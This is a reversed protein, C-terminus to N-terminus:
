HKNAVVSTKEDCIPSKFTVKVVVVVVVVVFVFLNAPVHDRLVRVHHLLEAGVMRALHDREVLRETHVVLRTANDLDVQEGLAVLLHDCAAARVAVHGHELRTAQGVVDVALYVRASAGLGVDAMRAEAGVVAGRREIASILRM